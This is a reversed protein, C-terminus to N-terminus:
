SPVWGVWPLRGLPELAAGVREGFVVPREARPAANAPLPALAVLKPPLRDVGTHKKGNRVEHLISTVHSHRVPRNVIGAHFTQPKIGVLETKVKEPPGRIRLPNGVGGVLLDAADGSDRTPRQQDAFQREGAPLPKTVRDSCVTRSPASRACM